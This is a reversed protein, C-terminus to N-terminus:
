TKTILTIKILHESKGGGDSRVRKIAEFDFPCNFIDICCPWAM